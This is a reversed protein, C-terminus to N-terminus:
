ATGSPVPAVHVVETRAVVRDRVDALAVRAPDTMYATLAADDPMEVVQVECPASPDQGPLARVRQVVRGGHAPVLALVEDEYRALSDADDTPWLLVCLTIPVTPM